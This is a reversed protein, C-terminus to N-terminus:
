TRDPRVRRRTLNQVLATAFHLLLSGAIIWCAIEPWQDSPNQVVEFTSGRQGTALDLPMKAQFLVFGGTRLPNNMFVSHAATTGDPDIRTIESQYSAPIDTGPHTTSTAKDLRVRFPLSWTQPRLDIQWRRGAVEIQAPDASDQFLLLTGPPSGDRPVIRAVGGAQNMEAEPNPKSVALAVEGGGPLVLTGPILASKAVPLTNPAAALLELVFPLGPQDLTLVPASGDFRARQSAAFARRLEEPSTELIQGGLRGDAGIERLQLVADTYSRVLQSSQGENVTLYGERKAAHSVAAAALLVLVGLHGGLAGIKNANWQWLIRVCGGVLNIGLVTMLLAGGPFVPTRLHQLSNLALRAPSADRLLEPPKPEGLFHVADPWFILWSEFFRHQSEVIGHNVQYLTGLWTSWAMLVLTWFALTYSSWLKLWGPLQRRPAPRRPDATAPLPLADDRDADLCAARADAAALTAASPSPRDAGAHPRKRGSRRRSPPRSM